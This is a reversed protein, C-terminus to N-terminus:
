KAAEAGQEPPLWEPKDGGFKPTPRAWYPRTESFTLVPAMHRLPGYSTESTTRWQGLEEQTFFADPAPLQATRGQRQILMGSQCLSVRM